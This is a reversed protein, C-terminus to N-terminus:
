GPVVESWCPCKERCNLTSIFIRHRMGKKDPKSCPIRTEAVTPHGFLHLWYASVLYRDSKTNVKLISSSIQESKRNFISQCTVCTFGSFSKAEWLARLVLLLLPKDWPNSPVLGTLGNWEMASAESVLSINKRRNKWNHSCGTVEFKKLKQCIHTRM